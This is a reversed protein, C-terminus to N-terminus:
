VVESELGDFDKFQDRYIEYYHGKKKLLENHNGAEVIKGDEMYLIIDADKVASIRHGIIFTTANTSNNKLNQLLDFETEMDLASTADDLILISSKRALARAIALRQKQGGSLGLGREGILTDFGDNLSNIFDYACAEKSVKILEEDSLDENSFKINNAISDSFLFTDQFVISMNQRLANLDWDKIDVGDILVSGTLTDYYRGILNVLSSKGSGTTGMIAVTSGGPVDINIDKLVVEENYKLSVNKFEIHGQINEPCYANEKSKITSGRKLIKFIKKASAKNQALLTVINGLNKLAGVLSLIYTSFALLTGLTIDNTIALYGGYIVVIALSLNNLFDMFPIFNSNTRAINMNVDYYAKNTKLFKSIEYKERAFSKVLRVGAINQQATSNIEATQDSLNEYNPSLKKELLVALVAIPVLAVMCAAALKVSLSFMVVFSLIFYISNEIFLRAGFSITQWIVDSDESIRSLLEGTNVDDFYAFEFTQIKQFLDNKISKAVDVSIVDFLYEKYYAFVCKIVSILLLLLLLKKLLAGNGKSIVNDLLSKQIIPSITDATICIVISIIPIIFLKWRPKIYKNFLNM